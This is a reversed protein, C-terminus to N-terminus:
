RAKAWSIGFHRAVEVASKVADEHFGYGHYSGAYYTLHRGNLRPLDRQTAVARRTFRPHTYDIERIVHKDPIPERRNLTVCYQQRTRLGQLNNMHYTMSLAPEDGQRRPERVYNWSAWARRNPPLVRADTHLVVRNKEYTWAGFIAREEPTSDALLPLVQDAHVAMVLRDFQHVEGDSMRLTVIEAGRHISDITVGSRITGSFKRRFAKLYEHSGGVVTQWKPRDKISLLGHNRFFDIFTRAPFHLMQKASTSWIAAGMPLVYSQTFFGSFGHAKLYAGLTLGDADGTRLDRLAQVSFRRIELLMRLFRPNALNSRQAFLGNLNTGAYMLGNTMDWFGFSMDSWRWPVQLERLFQHFNPYTKDNCVIFGTDVPTGADPGDPVLITHTHGGIRSDKEFLTVQHSKSLLWASSIGAVGAGVVAIRLPPQTM